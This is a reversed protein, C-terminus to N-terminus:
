FLCCVFLYYVHTHTSKRKIGNLLLLMFCKGVIRYAVPVICNDHARRYSSPSAHSHRHWHTRTHTCKCKKEGGFCETMSCIRPPPHESFSSGRKLRPARMVYLTNGTDHFSNTDDDYNGESTMM